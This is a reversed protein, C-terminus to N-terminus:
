QYEIAKIRHIPVDYIDGNSNIVVGYCQDNMTIFDILWAKYSPTLEQKENITMISVQIKMKTLNM